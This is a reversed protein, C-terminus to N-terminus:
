GTRVIRGGAPLVVDGAPAGSLVIEVPHAEAPRGTPLWPRGERCLILTRAKEGVFALREEGDVSGDWVTLGLTRELDAAVSPPECVVGIESVGVLEAATFTGVEESDAVGRHAILEVISGAPDHFYVARADWGTFEFVPDGSSRDPLVEVREGAWALADEFRNGPILLALHYFPEGSAPVLELMTEEGVVLSIGDDGGTGELGLTRRYFADVESLLGAPVALRIALFPTAPADM